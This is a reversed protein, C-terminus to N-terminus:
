KTNGGETYITIDARVITTENRFDYYYDMARVKTIRPLEEIQRILEHPSGTGEFRVTINMGESHALLAFNAPSFRQLAFNATSGAYTLELLYDEPKYYTPLYEELYQINEGAKILDFKIVSFDALNKEIQTNLEQLEPILVRKERITKFLPRIGFVGFAIFVILAWLSMLRSHYTRHTLIRKLAALQRESGRIM